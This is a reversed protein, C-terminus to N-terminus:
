LKILQILLGPLYKKAKMMEERKLPLPILCIAGAQIKTGGVDVGIIIGKDSLKRM